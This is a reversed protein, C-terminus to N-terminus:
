LLVIFYNSHNNGNQTGPFQPMPLELRENFTVDLLILAVIQILCEPGLVWVEFAATHQPCQYIGQLSPLVPFWGQLILLKCALCAPILFALMSGPYPLQSNSSLQATHIALHPFCVLFWRSGLSIFSRTLNSERINGGLQEILSPIREIAM